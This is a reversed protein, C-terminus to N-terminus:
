VKFVSRLVGVRIEAGSAGGSLVVGMAYDDAVCAVYQPVGDANLTGNTRVFAGAAIAGGTAIGLIDRQFASAVAVTERHPVKGVTCIGIPFQTGLTRISVTNNASIYVEQGDKINGGAGNTLTLFVMASEAHKSLTKSADHISGTM